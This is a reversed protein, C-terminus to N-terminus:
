PNPLVVRFGVTAFASDPVARGRATARVMGRNSTYSGGRVVRFLGTEPGQPNEDPSEAYYTPSYWDIVWEEVNGAMDLLGYPSAGAVFSGVAVTAQTNFNLHEDDTVEGQWPFMREDDGRAAKEWEAETPLRGGVWAAYAAAEHWDVHTVPYDAFTADQWTQNNPATCVGATVCRGYQANTVETEQIWFADLTVAHIPMEDGSITSGMPFPGAPVFHYRGGDAEHVLLDGAVPATTPSPIATPSLTVSPTPSATPVPTATPHPTDTATPSPATTNTATATPVPTNPATPSPTVTNSPTATPAATNSPTATP